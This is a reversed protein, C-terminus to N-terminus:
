KDAKLQKEDHSVKLRELKSGCLRTQAEFRKGHFSVAAGGPYIPFNKWDRM